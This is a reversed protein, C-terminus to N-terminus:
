FGLCMPPTEGQNGGEHGSKMRSFFVVYAVLFKWRHRDRGWFRGGREDPRWAVERELPVTQSPWCVFCACALHSLFAYLRLSPPTDFCVRFLYVYRLRPEDRELCWRKGCAVDSCGSVWRKPTSVPLGVVATCFSGGYVSTRGPFISPTLSSVSGGCMSRTGPFLLLDGAEKRAHTGPIAQEELCVPRSNRILEAWQLRNRM